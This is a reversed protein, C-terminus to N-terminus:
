GSKVKKKAMVVYTAINPISKDLRYANELDALAKTFSRKYYHCIGRRCIAMAHEPLERLADTYFEVARSYEKRAFFLDALAIGTNPNEPHIDNAVTFDSMARGYDGLDLHVRGRELYADYHQGDRDIVDSYFRVSESLAGEKLAGRALELSQSILAGRAEVEEETESPNENQPAQSTDPQNFDSSDGLELVDDDQASSPTVRVSASQRPVATRKSVKITKLRVSASNPSKPRPEESFPSRQGPRVTDLDEDDDEDSLAPLLDDTQLSETASKAEMAQSPAEAEITEIVTADEELDDNIEDENAESATADWTEILEEDPSDDVVWQIDSDTDSAVLPVPHQEDKTDLAAEEDTADINEFTILEEIGEPEHQGDVTQNAKTFAVLAEIEPSSIEESSDARYEESDDTPLRLTPDAAGEPGIDIPEQDKSTTSSAVSERMTSSPKPVVAMKLLEDTEHRVDFDDVASDLQMGVRVLIDHTVDNARTQVQGARELSLASSAADGITRELENLRSLIRNTRTFLEM